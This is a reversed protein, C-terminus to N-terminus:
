LMHTVPRKCHSLMSSAPPWVALRFALVVAPSHQSETPGGGVEGVAELRSAGAAQIETRSAGPKSRVPGPDGVNCAQGPIKPEGPEGTRRCTGPGPDERVGWKKGKERRGGWGVQRM